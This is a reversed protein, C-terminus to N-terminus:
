DYSFLQCWYYKYASGEVYRAAVGIKTYSGNMINAKHGPSYMWGIHSADENMYMVQNANEHGAAINEGAGRYTVAYDSFVTFCTRGDPRTHSFLSVTEGARIAALKDLVPSETVPQLGAATRENNVYQVVEAECGMSTGVLSVSQLAGTDQSSPTAAPSTASPESGSESKEAKKKSNVSAKATEPKKETVHIIRDGTGVADMSNKVSYKVVYDGTKSTDVTSSDVEIKSSIDGDVEDVAKVGTLLDIKTAETGQEVSIESLGELAPAGTNVVVFSVSSSNGSEDTVKLEVSREGTEQFRVGVDTFKVGNITKVADNSTSYNGDSFEFTVHGSLETISSVIKSVLLATEKSQYTKQTALTITPAVTDVIKINIKKTQKGCTIYLPYTGVSYIDVKSTDVKAIGTVDYDADVYTSPDVSIPKGLQVVKDRNESYEKKLTVTNYKLYRNHQYWNYSGAGVSSAGVVLVVFLLLGIKHVAIWSKIGSM